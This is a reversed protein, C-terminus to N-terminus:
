VSRRAEAPAPLVADRRMPEAIPLENIVARLKERIQVRTEDTKETKDKRMYELM